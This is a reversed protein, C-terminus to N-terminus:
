ENEDQPVYTKDLDEPEDAQLLAEDDRPNFNFLALRNVFPVKNVLADANQKAEEFTEKLSLLASKSM